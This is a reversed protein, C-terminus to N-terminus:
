GDNRSKILASRGQKPSSSLLQSRASGELIGSLMTLVAKGPLIHDRLGSKPCLPGESVRDALRRGPGHDDVNGSLPCGQSDVRLEPVAALVPIEETRQSLKWNRTQLVSTSM